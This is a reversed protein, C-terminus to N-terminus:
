TERQVGYRRTQPVGQEYLAWAASAAEDAAGRFHDNIARVIPDGAYQFALYAKSDYKAVRPLEGGLSRRNVVNASVLEEHTPYWMDQANTASVRALFEESLGASRYQDLMQKTMRADLKTNMGPFFARHFGIQASDTAARDVGALFIFTCASECHEEVYTNLGRDRVLSAIDIGEGIRGGPSNLMLTTVSPNEDLVKEVSAASGVGMGGTILLAKRNRTLQLEVHGLPDKNTAILWHEKVQPLQYLFGNSAMGIAGLVVVVYAVAAWLASGGRSVHRQASRWVGVTSWVGVVVACINLLIAAASAWRLSLDDLPKLILTLMGATLLTVGWSNVWYSVGLSVDGRWHRVLYNGSQHEPAETHEAETSNSAESRDEEASAWEYQAERREKRVRLIVCVLAVVNIAFPLLFVYAPVSASADAGLVCLTIFVVNAVIASRVFRASPELALMTFTIPVFMLIIGIVVNRQGALEGGFLLTFLGAGLLLINMFGVIKNM